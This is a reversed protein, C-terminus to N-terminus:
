VYRGGGKGGRREESRLASVSVEGIGMEPMWGHNGTAQVHTSAFISAEDPDQGVVVRGIVALQSDGRDPLHFPHVTRIDCAFEREKAPAEAGDKGHGRDRGALGPARILGM